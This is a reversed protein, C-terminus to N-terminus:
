FPGDNFNEQRQRHDTIRLQRYSTPKVEYGKRQILKRTIAFGPLSAIEADGMKHAIEADIEEVRDESSKIASKLQVREALIEPLYNDTSLDIIKDVTAADNLAAILQADKAYDPDPQRGYDVDEWFKAVGERIRAEAGEHRPIEYIPCNCEWPDIILCAVAGFKARPELMLETANQLAVYFPPTNDDWHKKFSGPAATKAQLVGLGRPDGEIYFDPTAGIRADPDRLYETAKVIKWGPKQREVAAAVASELILRWELMANMTDPVDLGSKEAFLAYASQFPHCNFVAAVSSATVDKKRLTMWQERSTIPIREITM